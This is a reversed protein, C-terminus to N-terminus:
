KLFDQLRKTEAETMPKWEISVGAMKTRLKEVDKSSIDVGELKLKKLNPLVSLQEAAPFTLQMETLELNELSKM